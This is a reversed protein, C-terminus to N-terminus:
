APITVRKTAKTMSMMVMATSKARPPCTMSYTSLTSSRWGTSSRSADIADFM